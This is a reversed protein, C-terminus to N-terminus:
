AGFDRELQQINLSEAAARAQEITVGGSGNVAVAVGRGIVTYNASGDSTSVEETILRGDVTQTRSYGNADQQSGQVNAAGAMAAMAGMAGMDTITVSLQASGNSYVAEATSVGMASGNSSSSLTFGGPLSQPLRAALQNPDSAAGAAGGESMAQGMQSLDLTGGGPLTVEGQASPSGAVSPASQSSNVGPMGVAGGIATRVSGVVVGIVLWVVIAVIIITAFYGVRKDEPTKMLRPLGLFLLVLSYLGLLSLIALPPFIAFVGAIFSATAGYAALKHAQGMNQQSGFTPALANAIMALVYVGVLGMVVQLIGTVAGAVIPVRYSVGFASVGFISLGIFACIASLAALPLVYGMYIKSVDAAEGDIREWETQPKLLIGQVREILGPAGAGTPSPTM